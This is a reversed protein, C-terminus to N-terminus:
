LLVDRQEPGRVEDGHVLVLGRHDDALEVARAQPERAEQVCAALLRLVDGHLLVEHALLHCVLDTREGPPLQIPFLSRPPATPHALLALQALSSGSDIKMALAHM